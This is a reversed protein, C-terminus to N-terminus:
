GLAVGGLTKTGGARITVAGDFLCDCLCSILEKEFTSDLEEGSLRLPDAQNLFSAGVRDKVGGGPFRDDLGAENQEGASFCSREDFDDTAEDIAFAFTTVGVRLFEALKLFPV